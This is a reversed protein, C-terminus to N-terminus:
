SEELMGRWGSMGGLLYQVHHGKSRLWVAMEAARAGADDVLLILDVGQALVEAEGQFRNYPLSIAGELRAREFQAETRLDLILGPQVEGLRLAWAELELSDM